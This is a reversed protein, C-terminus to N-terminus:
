RGFTIHDLSQHGPQNAAPPNTSVPSTKNTLVSGMIQEFQSKISFDQYKGNYTIAIGGILSSDVSIDFIVQKKTNMIFWQSLMKLTADDPEFALSLSLVPMTTIFQQMKDLFEKLATGSAINVKNDRVLKIFIDRKQIGFQEALSMEFNFDTQYIKESIATLRESFEKAQSRTKFFDSLDILEM